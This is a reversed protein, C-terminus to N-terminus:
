CEEGRYKDALKQIPTYYDELIRKVDLETYIRMRECRDSCVFEHKTRLTVMDTNCVLCPLPETKNQKDKNNPQM